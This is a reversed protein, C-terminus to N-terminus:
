LSFGATEYIQKYDCDLLEYLSLHKNEKMYNGVLRAGMWMPMFPPVNTQFYNKLYDGEMLEHEINGKRNLLQSNIMYYWVKSENNEMWEVEDKTYGMSAGLNKYGITKYVIWQIKGVNVLWEAYSGVQQKNIYESCLYYFLVDPIIRDSTMSRRQYPYYYRAYLPYNEGLYKDLSIGVLSDSVVISQNLASIQTYITPIRLTPLDNKLKNFAMNLSDEISSIDAYKKETDRMVKLLTTDSYFTYIYQRMNAKESDGLNLVNEYLIATELPYNKKMKLFSGNDKKLIFSSQLKDYRTIHILHEESESENQCSTSLATLILIFLLGAITRIYNVLKM